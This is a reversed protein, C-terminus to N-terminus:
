QRAKIEAAWHHLDSVRQQTPPHDSIIQELKIPIQHKGATVDMLHQMADAAKDPDIGMRAIHEQGLRDAEAEKVQSYRNGVLEDGANMAVKSINWQRFVLPLTVVRRLVTEQLKAVSHRQEVHAIEHGLVFALQDDDPFKQMLARTAYVNGGPLAMANIQDTDLMKFRFNLDQRTSTAALRQGIAELRAQEQPNNWVKYEKELQASAQKGLEVEDTTSMWTQSPVKQLQVQAQHPQAVMGGVVGAVTLGLMLGAGLKVGTSLSTKDGHPDPPEPQKPAPANPGPQRSSLPSLGALGSNRSINM